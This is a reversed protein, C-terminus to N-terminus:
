SVKKFRPKVQGNIEMTGAFEVLTRVWHAHSGFQAHDYLSEYYVMLECNDANRALGLVKYKKGKYHEYLGGIEIYKVLEQEQPNNAVFGNDAQIKMSSMMCLVGLILAYIM